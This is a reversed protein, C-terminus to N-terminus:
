KKLLPHDLEKDPNNVRWKVQHMIGRIIRVERETMGSRYFIQRILTMMRAPDAEHIFSIEILTQELHKFMNELNQSCALKRAELKPAIVAQNLTYLMVTAAHSLNFSDSDVGTQIATLAHCLQMDENSLGSEENGLVLAVPNLELVACAMKAAHDPMLINRRLAGRRRSTGIVLGCDSVADALTEHFIARDIIDTACTAMMYAERDLEARPAVLRLDEVGTNKMSRAVSGINGPFKTGVLVVRLNALLGLREKFDLGETEDM